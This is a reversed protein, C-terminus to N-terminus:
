TARLTILDGSVGYKYTGSPEIVSAPTASKVRVTVRQGADKLKNTDM